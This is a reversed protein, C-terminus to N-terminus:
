RKNMRKKVKSNGRDPQSCILVDGNQDVKEFKCQRNKYRDKNLIDIAHVFMCGGIISIIFGGVFLLNYLLVDDIRESVRSIILGIYILLHGIHLVYTKNM